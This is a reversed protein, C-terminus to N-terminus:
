KSTSGSIAAVLAIAVLWYYETFMNHTVLGWLAVCVIVILTAKQIGDRRFAITGILGPVIIAGAIGFDSLLQLYQNHTSSRHMWLETSGIGNGLLPHDLFQQWGMEALYTREDASFDARGEPDLFWLLREIGAAGGIADSVVPWVFIITV